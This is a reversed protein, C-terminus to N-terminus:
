MCECVCRYICMCKHVVVDIPACMRACACAVRERARAVCVRARAVCAYVHKSILKM